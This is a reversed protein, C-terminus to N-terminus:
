KSSQTPNALLSQLRIRFVDRMNVFNGSLVHLRTDRDDKFSVPIQEIRYGLQRALILLEVDFMYGTVTLKSFLTKAASQSFFKFGCQTDHIGNLGVVTQMLKLFVKSGVTRYWKRNRNGSTAEWRNGIVLDCGRNLAPLFKSFEKLPTKNDADAYGIIKGTAIEVASKVSLGKGRRSASEIVKLRVDNLYMERVISATGDNGDAAVIIEFSLHNSEFYSIAESLTKLIQQRENYAPFILSVLPSAHM